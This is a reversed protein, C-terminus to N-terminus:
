LAYPPTWAIGNSFAESYWLGPQYHIRKLLKGVPHNQDFTIQDGAQPNFLAEVPPALPNFAMLHNQDQVRFSGRPMIQGDLNFLDFKKNGQFKFKGGNSYFIFDAPYPTVSPAAVVSKKRLGEFIIKGKQNKLYIGRVEGRDSVRLGIHPEDSENRPLGSFQEPISFKMILTEQRKLHNTSFYLPAVHVTYPTTTKGTNYGPDKVLVTVMFEQFRPPCTCGEFNKNDTVGVYTPVAFVGPAVEQTVPELGEGLMKSVEQPSSFGVIYYAKSDRLRVMRNHNYRNSDWAISPTIAEGDGVANSGEQTPTIDEMQKELRKLLDSDSHSREAFVNLAFILSLGLPLLFIKFLNNM